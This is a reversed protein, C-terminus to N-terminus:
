RSDVVGFARAVTISFVKLSACDTALSASSVVDFAGALPTCTSTSSIFVVSFIGVIVNRDFHM